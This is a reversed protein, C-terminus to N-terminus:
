RRLLEGCRSCYHAGRPNTAQCHPCSPLSERGLARHMLAAGAWLLLGLVLLVILTMPQFM